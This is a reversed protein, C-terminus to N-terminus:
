LPWRVDRRFSGCRCPSSGCRSCSPSRFDSCPNVGTAIGAFSAGPSAAALWRGILRDIVTPLTTANGDELSTTRFFEIRAPGAGLAKVNSGSDVAAVIDPDASILAALEFAATVVQAPVNTADLPAGTVDTLGTRPFQLTTPTGGALRTALGQWFQSDIFRTATILARKQDDPAAIRFAAPGDGVAALLYHACAALGGYVEFGTADGTLLEVFITM